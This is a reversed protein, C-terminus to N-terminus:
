RRLPPPICQLFITFGLQQTDLVGVVRRQREGSKQATGQDAHPQHTGEDAQEACQSIDGVQNGSQAHHVALTAVDHFHKRLQDLLQLVRHFTHGGCKHRGQIPQQPGHGQSEGQKRMALKHRQEQVLPATQAVVDKLEINIVPNGFARRRGLAKV